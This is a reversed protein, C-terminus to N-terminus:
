AVLKGRSSNRSFQCMVLTIDDLLQANNRYAQIQTKLHEMKVSADDGAQSAKAVNNLFNREGWTEGTPSKLDVIGDTYMLIMDGPELQVEVDEYVAKAIDGLRPGSKEILPVFTKRTVKGDPPVRLLYPPDHSANSYTFKGSKLDIMCIFFTMMIKGKSTEGIARNMVSMARAPTMDPMTEIIAAASRAAGTILAAPAGHGTADGIWCFLKDGVMSYNWWDGGCESAPEFHGVIQFDGFDHSAEPFLTEQVTKVTALENAMRAKEATETMLRAVEKAMLNFSRALGGVEDDSHAKVNIDFSGQAVKQTADFLQRITSTLQVSAMLSIVVTSALLAIFFLLSKAVLVKVAQLAQKKDVMSAVVLDGVPLKSYSLLFTQKDAPTVEGTGESSHSNLALAFVKQPSVHAFVAGGSPGLIIDGQPGVLFSAYHQGEEFAHLLDLSRYTALYVVVDPSNREGIRQAFYLKDKGATPLLGIGHDLAQKAALQALTDLADSDRGLSGIDILEGASGTKFITLSEIKEQKKFVDKAADAFRHQGYDYFELLPKVQNVVNDMDMRTQVSLSHAVAVSSDFVYALKDSEFLRTAMLVYLGLSVLPLITLAMLIKYRISLGM